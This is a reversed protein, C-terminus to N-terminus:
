RKRSRRKGTDPRSAVTRAEGSADTETRGEESSGEETSGSPVESPLHEGPACDFTLAAALAGSVSPPIASAMAAFMTGALQARLEDVTPPTFSGLTRGCLRCVILHAAM